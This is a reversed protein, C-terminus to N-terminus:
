ESMATGESRPGLFYRRTGRRAGAATLRGDKLMRHIYTHLTKREVMWNRDALWTLLEAATLGDNVRRIATVIAAPTSAQIPVDEDNRGRATNRAASAAAPVHLRLSLAESLERVREKAVLLEDELRKRM